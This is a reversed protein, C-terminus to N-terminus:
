QKLYEEVLQDRLALMQFILLSYEALTQKKKLESKRLNKEVQILEFVDVRGQHFSDQLERFAKKQYASAQRARGISKYSVNIKQELNNIKNSMKQKLIEFDIQSEEWQYQNQHAKEYSSKSFIVWNLSLGLEFFSHKSSFDLSDRSASAPIWGKKGTFQINPFLRAKSSKFNLEREITKQKQIKMERTKEIKFKSFSPPPSHAEEKFHLKHILPDKKLFLLLAKKEKEYNQKQSETSQQINQYEALIQPKEGPKLFNYKQKSHIQRVLKKYVELGKKAQIWHIWALYTKWYQSLAQLALEEAQEYYLWENAKEGQQIALLSWHQILAEMLGAKLELSFNKRYIKNPAQAQKLFDSYLQEQSSHSYSGKLNLAYPLSKQLGMVWDQSKNERSEFVSIQPNNRKSQSIHSFAEWRSFSYKRELLKSLNKQKTIRIKKIFPSSSLAQKLVETQSLYLQTEKKSYSLAPIIFLLALLFFRTAPDIQTIFLPCPKIIFVNKIKSWM